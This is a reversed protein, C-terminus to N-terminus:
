ELYCHTALAVGLLAVAQRETRSRMGRSAGHLSNFNDCFMFLQPWLSSVRFMAGALQAKRARCSSIPDSMIKACASGFLDSLCSRFVLHALQCIGSTGILSGLSQPMGEVVLVRVRTPERYNRCLGKM